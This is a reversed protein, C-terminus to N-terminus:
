RHLTAKWLTSGDALSLKLLQPASVGVYLASGDSFLSEVDQYALKTSWRKQGAADTATLDWEDPGAFVPKVTTGDAFTLSLPQGTSTPLSCGGDAQGTQHGSADVSVRVPAPTTKSDVTHAYDACLVFGGAGDSTISQVGEIPGDGNGIHACGAAAFLLLAPLWSSRTM